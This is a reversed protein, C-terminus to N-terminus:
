GTVFAQLGATFGGLDVDQALTQTLGCRRAVALTRGPFPSIWVLRGRPALLSAAHEVFRELLAPLARTREVRRGLPPNTIILTPRASPTFTVADGTVLIRREDPVGAAGLNESAAALAAPDRDSGILTRYPGLLARECLELGSGVFPDWVVDGPQVGAVRALAAAVTPHSSAPVDARRYAFRPDQVRPGLEVRVKGPAEHIVVDWLSQTPDNVLAPRRESVAAAIRFILARRKGGGAWAMRYRVPGRTYGALVDRAETSTLATVVAAALADADGPPRVPQERLPFAFSLMTRSRFLWALPEALTLEIRAGGPGDAHPRPRAPALEDLVFRELGARCRVVVRVPRGPAREADIASPEARRASRDAMLRARTHARALGHSTAPAPADTGAGAPAPSPALRTIEDLAALADAGGTKGLAEILARQVSTSPETALAGALVGAVDRDRVKGLATAAARRVREDSHSLGASLCAILADGAEHAALKGALRLLRARAAPELAGAQGAMLDAMLDVLAAVAPERVRVLAREALAASGAGGAVRDLLAPVDSRRPTFGPAVLAQDLDFDQGRRATM